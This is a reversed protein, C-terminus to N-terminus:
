LLIYIGKNIITQSFFARKGKLKEFLVLFLLNIM